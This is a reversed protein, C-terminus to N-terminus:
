LRLTRNIKYLQDLISAMNCSEVASLRTELDALTTQVKCDDPTMPTPKRPMQRKRTAAGKVESAARKAEDASRRCTTVLAAMEEVKSAVPNDVQKVARAVYKDLKEAIVKKLSEKLELEAQRIIEAVHMSLQSHLKAKLTEESAVLNTKAETMMTELTSIALESQQTVDNFSTVRLEDLEGIINDFTQKLKTQHQAFISDVSCGLKEKAECMRAIQSSAHNELTKAMQGRHGGNNLHDKSEILYQLCSTTARFMTDMSEYSSGPEFCHGWNNWFAVIEKAWQRGICLVDSFLVVRCAQNFQEFMSDTLLDVESETARAEDPLIVEIPYYPDGVDCPDYKAMSYAFMTMTIGAMIQNVLTQEMEPDSSDTDSELKVCAILKHLLTRAHGVDVTIMKYIDPKDYARYISESEDLGFIYACQIKKVQTGDNNPIVELLSYPPVELDSKPVRDLIHTETPSSIIFLHKITTM